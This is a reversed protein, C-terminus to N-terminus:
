NKKLASNQHRLKPPLPPAKSEGPLHAAARAPLGKPVKYLSNFGKMGLYPTYEPVPAAVPAEEGRLYPTYGAVPAAVPAPAEKGGIYPTYGPVPAAVPVSASKDVTNYLNMHVVPASASASRDPVSQRRLAHPPPLPLDGNDSEYGNQQQKQVSKKALNENEARGRVAGKRVLVGGKQKRTYKKTRRSRHKRSKQKHSIKPM